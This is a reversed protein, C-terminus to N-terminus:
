HSSHSTFNLHSPLYPACMSMHAPDANNHAESAVCRLARLSAVFTAFATAACLALLRSMCCCWSINMHLRCTVRIAVNPALIFYFASFSNIWWRRRTIQSSFVCSFHIRGGCYQGRQWSPGIVRASFHLTGREVELWEKRTDKQVDDVRLM